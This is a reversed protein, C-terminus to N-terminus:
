IRPAGRNEGLIDHYRMTRDTTKLTRVVRNYRIFFEKAKKVDRCADAISTSLLAVDRSVEFHAQAAFLLSGVSQRCLANAREETLVFREKQYVDALPIEQMASAFKSMHIGIEDTGSRTFQGGFFDIASWRNLYNVEGAEMESMVQKFLKWDNSDAAILIDDVYIILFSSIRAVSQDANRTYRSFSCCESRM